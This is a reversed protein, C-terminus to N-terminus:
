NAFSFSFLSIAVKSLVEIARRPNGFQRESLPRPDIRATRAEKIIESGRMQAPEIVVDKVAAGRPLATSRTILEQLAEDIRIGAGIAEDRTLPRLGRM